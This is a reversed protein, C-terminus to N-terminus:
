FFSVFFFSEQTKKERPVKNFCHCLFFIIIIIHICKKKTTNDANKKGAHEDDHEPKYRKIIQTILFAFCCACFWKSCTKKKWFALLV